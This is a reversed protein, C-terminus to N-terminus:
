VINIGFRTALVIKNAECMKISGKIKQLKKAILKDYDAEFHRRLCHSYEKEVRLAM